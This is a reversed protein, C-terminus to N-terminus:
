VVGVVLKEKKAGKGKNADVLESGYALWRWWGEGEGGDAM